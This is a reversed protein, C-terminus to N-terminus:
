SVPCSLSSDHQLTSGDIAWANPQTTGWRVATVEGNVYMNKCLFIVAGAMEEDSGHRKTMELPFYRPAFSDIRVEAKEFEARMFKSPHVTTSEAADFAFHHQSNRLIRRM